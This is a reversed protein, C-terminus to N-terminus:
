EQVQVMGRLAIEKALLPGVTITITDKISKQDKAYAIDSVNELNLERLLGGVAVLFEPDDTLPGNKKSPWEKESYRVFLEGGYVKARKIRPARYFFLGPFIKIYLKKQIANSASPVGTLVKGTILSTEM